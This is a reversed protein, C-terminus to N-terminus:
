AVKKKVYMVTDETITTSSTAETTCAVNTYVFTKTVSQSDVTKTEFYDANNAIDAFAVALDEKGADTSNKNIVYRAVVGQAKGGYAEKITLIYGEVKNFNMSNRETYAKTIATGDKDYGGVFSSRNKETDELDQATVDGVIRDAVCEYMLVAEDYLVVGGWGKCKWGISGKQNIPDETGSSGLPKIITEPDGYGALKVLKTGKEGRYKGLIITGHIYKTTGSSTYSYTSTIANDVVFKFGNWRGIEGDLIVEGKSYNAIEVFTFKKNNKALDLLDSEIEPSILWVYDKGDYPSVKSRRLFAKIKRADNLNFSGASKRADDISGTLALSSPDDAGNADVPTAFWRNTTSYFIDRAKEQFMEGVAYGQNRQLRTSEGSDLSYIDLDDSYTIYGGFDDISVQYWFTAMPEDEKPRVGEVLPEKNTVYKGSKRFKMTKGNNKPLTVVDAYKELSYEEYLADKLTKDYYAYAETESMKKGYTATNDSIIKTATSAFMQLNLRKRM